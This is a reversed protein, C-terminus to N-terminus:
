KREWGFLRRRYKSSPGSVKKLGTNKLIADMALANRDSVGILFSFKVRKGDHDLYFDLNGGARTDFYVIDYIDQYAIRKRRVLSWLILHNEYFDMVCASRLYLLGIGVGLLYIPFVLLNSSFELKLTLFFLTALGIAFALGCLHGFITEFSWVRLAPGKKEDLSQM